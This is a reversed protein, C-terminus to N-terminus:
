SGKIREKSGYINTAGIGTSGTKYLSHNYKVM